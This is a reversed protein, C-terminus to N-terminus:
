LDAYIYMMAAIAAICDNLDKPNIKDPTDAEGHHYWFYKGEDKTNLHMMPINNMEALPSADVGWAGKKITIDAIENLVKEIAKAKNFVSDTGKIGFTEPPFVGADFEFMLSEKIVDNFEENVIKLKLIDGYSNTQTSENIADEIVVSVEPSNAIKRYENLLALNDEFHKNIFRNYFHSLSSIGTTGYGQTFDIDEFGEGYRYKDKKKIEYNDYKGVFKKIAETLIYEQENENLTDLDFSKSKFINKINQFLSM